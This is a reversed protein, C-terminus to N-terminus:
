FQTTLPTIPADPPADPPANRMTRAVQGIAHGQVCYAYFLTFLVGVGCAIIGLSGVMSALISTLLVMFWSGLNARLHAIVAGFEFAQALKGTVVYRAAAVTTLAGGGLALIFFIPMVICSMVGVLAGGTESDSSASAGLATICVFIGMVVFAPILYVLSIVFYYLGKLMLDGFDSWAPLPQAVDNAVNEVIKLMYGLLIFPGVIPILFVLGGILIKAIWGERDDQVFSFARSIDM